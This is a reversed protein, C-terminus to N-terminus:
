RRVVVEGPGVVKALFRKGTSANAVVIDEAPLGNEQAIGVTSVVVGGSRYCVKVEQGKRIVYRRSVDRRMLIHGKRLPYRVTWGVPSERGPFAGAYEGDLGEVSELDERKLVEGTPVDRKLRWLRGRVIPSVRVPIVRGKCLLRVYCHGPCDKPLSVEIQSLDECGINPLSQQELRYGMSSLRGNLWRLVEEGSLVAERRYIEITGEVKVRLGRLALMRSVDEGTWRFVDGEEPAPSLIIDGIGSLDEVVDSLRVFRTNLVVKDKLRLSQVDEAWGPLVFLLVLWFVLMALLSIAVSRVVEIWYLGVNRNGM